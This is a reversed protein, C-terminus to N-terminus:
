FLTYLRNSATEYPSMVRFNRNSEKLNMVDRLFPALGRTSEETSDGPQPLQVAYSRFDPLKLEQLLLGGNAHPNAGMRRAGQPALAAVEPLFRGDADFLRAPM